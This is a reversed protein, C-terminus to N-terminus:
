GMTEYRQRAKDKAKAVFDSYNNTTARAAEEAADGIKGGEAGLGVGPTYAMTEIIHTRGDGEAGLGAGNSWGMKALLGAGKSITPKSAAADKPENDKSAPNHKRPPQQKPKTPQRHAMRREKARDRYTSVPEQGVAKLDSTAKQILADDDLNKKHLDSLQEHRRLSPESIFKRRCLLCCM